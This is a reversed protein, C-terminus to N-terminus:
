KQFVRVFVEMIEKVPDPCATRLDTLVQTTALIEGTGRIELSFNYIYFDDIKQPSREYRLKYIATPADIVKAVSKRTLDRRNIESIEKGRRGEHNEVSSYTKSHEPLIYAWEISELGVKSCLPTPKNEGCQALGPILDIGYTLINSTEIYLAKPPAENLVKLIKTAKTAHIACLEAFKQQRVKRFAEQQEARYKTLFPDIFEHDLYLYFVFAPFSLWVFFRLPSLSSTKKIFVCAFSFLIWAIGLGGIILVGMIYM